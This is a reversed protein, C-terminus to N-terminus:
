FMFWFFTKFSVNPGEVTFNIIMLKRTCKCRKSSNYGGNPDFEIAKLFRKFNEIKRVHKKFIKTSSSIWLSVIKVSISGIIEM